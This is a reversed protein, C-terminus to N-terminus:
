YKKILTSTEPPPPYNCGHPGAKLAFLIVGLVCSNSRWLKDFNVPLVSTSLTSYRSTNSQGGTIGQLERVRLKNFMCQVKRVVFDWYIYITNAKIKVVNSVKLPMQCAIM